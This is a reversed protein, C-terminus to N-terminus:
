AYITKIKRSIFKLAALSALVGFIKTPEIIVVLIILIYAIINM